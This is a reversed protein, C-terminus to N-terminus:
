RNNKFPTTSRPSDESPIILLHRSPSCISGYGQFVTLWGCRRLQSQIREDSCHWELNRGEAKMAQYLHSLAELGADDGYTVGRLDIVFHSLAPDEKREQDGAGSHLGPPADVFRPACHDKRADASGGCRFVGGSQEACSVENIGTESGRASGIAERCKRQRGPLRPRREPRM